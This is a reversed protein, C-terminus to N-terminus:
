RSKRPNSRHMVAMHAVVDQFTGSCAPCVASRPKKRRSEPASHKPEPHEADIHEYVAHSDAFRQGCHACSYRSAKHIDTEAWEERSVVPAGDTM